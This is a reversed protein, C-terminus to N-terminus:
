RCAGSSLGASLPTAPGDRLAVSVSLQRLPRDSMYRVILEHPRDSLYIQTAKGDNGEIKLRQLGDVYLAAQGIAEVRFVHWGATAPEFDGSFTVAVPMLTGSALTDNENTLPISPSAARVFVPNESPEGQLAYDSFYPWLVGKSIAQCMGAQRDHGTRLHNLAPGLGAGIALAAALVRGIRGPGTPAKFMVIASFAWALALPLIELDRPLGLARGLNFAGPSGFLTSESFTGWPYTSFLGRSYLPLYFGLFPETPEYPLRPDIAAVPLMLLITTVILVGIIPALRDSRMPFAALVVAFPIAILLHRPGFSFAGGWYVISDGFGSNFLLFGAFIAASLVLELRQGRARAVFFPAALAFVLWPNAHFLGRQPRFTLERLVDLRPWSVGMFGQQHAPFASGAKYFSYSLVGPSGLIMQNYVPLPLIGLLAGGIVLLSDRRGLTALAYLGILGSAIAGPYEIVPLFGIMLGAALLRMARSGDDLWRSSWILYFAGFAFLASLQHGFLVTAWPFAMTGLGYGVALLTSRALSWGNRALFRLLLLSLLATPLASMLITLVYTILILQKTDDLPLLRMAMSAAGWPALGLLTTGPAKNPFTHGGLQITDATNAEFRDIWWEGHEMVSRMQDLRAAENHGTSQFFYAASLLVLAFVRWSAARAEGKLPTPEM